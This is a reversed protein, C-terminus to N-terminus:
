MSGCSRVPWLLPKKWTQKCGVAGWQQLSPLHLNCIMALQFGQSEEVLKFALCVLCFQDVKKNLPQFFLPLRTAIAANKLPVNLFSCYKSAVLSLRASSLETNCYACGSCYQMHVWVTQPVLNDALPPLQCDVTCRHQAVVREAGVYPLPIATIGACSINCLFLAPSARFLPM